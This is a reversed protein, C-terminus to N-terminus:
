QRQEYGFFLDDPLVKDKLASAIDPGIWWRVDRRILGTNPGLVRFLAPLGTANDPRLWDTKNKTSRQEEELSESEQQYHFLWLSIAAEIVTSDVTWRGEKKKVVFQIKETSEYNKSLKLASRAVRVDLTWTFHSNDWKTSNRHLHNFKNMVKEIAAAVAISDDCAPGKWRTLDGLRKRISLVKQADGRFCDIKESQNVFEGSTASDYPNSSIEWEDNKGRSATSLSQTHSRGYRAQRQAGTGRFRAWFPLDQPESYTQLFRANLGMRLAVWDMEHNSTLKDVEPRDLLGRRIWARLMTTFTIAVLQAISCAWSMGRFGEFQLVFGALGTVTGVLTLAKLGLTHRHFESDHRQGSVDTGVSHQESHQSSRFSAQIESQLIGRSSNSSRHEKLTPRRPSETAHESTILDDRRRSTLIRSRGGKAMIMFSDFSQDSVTHSKQLWFVRIRNFAKPDKRTWEYEVTSKDIVFSCIMMGLVLIGTGLAMLPFAYARVPGGVRANLQFNYATFGSFVVVGSQLLVGFSAIIALEVSRSVGFAANPENEIHLNLSINPAKDPHCHIAQIREQGQLTSGWSTKTDNKRVDEQGWIRGNLSASRVYSISNKTPTHITDRNPSASPPIRDIITDNNPGDVRAPPAASELECQTRHQLAYNEKEKRGRLGFRTALQGFTAVFEKIKLRSRM